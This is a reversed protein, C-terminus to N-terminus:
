KFVFKERGCKKCNYICFDGQQLYLGRDYYVKGNSIRCTFEYKHIHFNIIFELIKNIVKLINKLIHEKIFNM